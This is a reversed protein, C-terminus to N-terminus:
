VSRRRSLTYPRLSSNFGSSLVQNLPMCSCVVCRSIAPSISRSRTAAQVPCFAVPAQTTTSEIPILWATRLWSSVLWCVAYIKCLFTRYLVTILVCSGPPVSCVSGLSKRSAIKASLVMNAMHCSIVGRARLSHIHQTVDAFFCSVLSFRMATPLDLICLPMRLGQQQAPQM